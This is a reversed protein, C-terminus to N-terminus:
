ESDIVSNVTISYINQFQWRLSVFCTHKSCQYNSVSHPLLQSNLKQWQTFEATMQSPNARLRDLMNALQVAAVSQLYATYSSRLANLQLGTIALIGFSLILMAILVEILSYGRM